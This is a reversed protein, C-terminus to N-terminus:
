ALKPLLIVIQLIKQLSAGSNLKSWSSISYFDFDFDFPSLNMQSRNQSQSLDFIVSLCARVAAPWSVVEVRVPYWRNRWDAFSISDQVARRRLFVRCLHLPLTDNETVNPCTFGAGVIKLRLLIHIKVQIDFQRHITVNNKLIHKVLTMGCTELRSLNSLLIKLLRYM